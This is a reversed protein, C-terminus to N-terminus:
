AVRGALAGLRGLERARYESSIIAYLVNDRFRGDVLRHHRMIGEQRMGLREMVKWSRQNETDTTASIRELALDAFGFGMLREAGEVAFGCGWRAPDLSWGMDGQRHIPDNVRIRFNGIVRGAEKEWAAFYYNGLQDPGKLGVRERLFAQVAEESPRGAPLLRWFDEHLAYCLVDKEDGAQFPRLVLRRTELHM